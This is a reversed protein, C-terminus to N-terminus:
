NNDKIQKRFTIKELETKFSEESNNDNSQNRKLIERIIEEDSDENCINFSYIFRYIPFYIYTLLLSIIYFLIGKINM